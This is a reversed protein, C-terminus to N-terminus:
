AEINQPPLFQPLSHSHTTEEVIGPDKVWFVQNDLAPLVGVNLVQVPIYISGSKRHPQAGLLGM